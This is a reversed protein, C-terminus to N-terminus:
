IRRAITSIRWSRGVRGANSAGSPPSAKWIEFLHKAAFFWLGQAITRYQKSAGINLWKLLVGVHLLCLCVCLCVSVFVCLCVYVPGHCIGRLAYSACYFISFSLNVCHIFLRWTYVLQKTIRILLEYWILNWCSIRFNLKWPCVSDVAQRHTLNWM